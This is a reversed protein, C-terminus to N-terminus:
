MAMKFTIELIIELLGKAIPSPRYKEFAVKADVSGEHQLFFTSLDYFKKRLRVSLM